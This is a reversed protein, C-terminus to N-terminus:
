ALYSSLCTPTTKTEDERVQMEQPTAEQVAPVAADSQLSFELIGKRLLDRLTEGNSETIVERLRPRKEQIDQLLRVIASACPYTTFYPNDPVCLEVRDEVGALDTESRVRLAPHVRLKLEGCDERALRQMLGFYDEVLPYIPTAPNNVTRCYYSSRGSASQCMLLYGFNVSELGEREFNEVWQDFVQNYESFTQGFPAHSHPVCFLLADRDATKLVLQDMADGSWWSDLKTGYGDVNVLDTVVAIRGRSTLHPAAEQIIRRLVQEGNAGGDRFRYEARPSPVFPPNALVVDFREGRVPEFLDGRHIALNEVGNLQANFRAVRVARPNVDVSVVRRSYRSAVIGQIGSGCCLDLTAMSRSRPATQVLGHSDMGIYMVPQETLQDEALFMYRHDTAFFLGDSCFLDVRSAWRQERKVLVGLGCLATFVDSGLLEEIREKSLATRLLFLRVLDALGTDPLRKRDYYRLHTPEITQLSDCGLLACIAGEHYGQLHLAANLDELMRRQSFSPDEFAACLAEDSDKGVPSDPTRAPSWETHTALGFVGLEGRAWDIERRLELHTLAASLRFEEVSDQPGNLAALLMKVQSLDYQRTKVRGAQDVLSSQGLPDLVLVVDDSLQTRLGGHFPTKPFLRSTERFRGGETSLRQLEGPTWPSEDGRQFFLARDLKEMLDTVAADPQGLGHPLVTAPVSSLHEQYDKVPVSKKSVWYDGLALYDLDCSLLTQLAERPTEVIPQGAVNFSTNLIVPPGGRQEAMVNCLQYFFPNTAQDVTQVRGTGDAHTVAPIQSRMEPRVESVLLMFPSAHELVFVENVRDLPIVPAFPRFAERFKVRANIVAKMEQFTPDALISRHGLARPGFEAGQEFRAVISGTALSTATQRLIEECTMKEFHVLDSFEDLAAAIQVDDHAHGLAAVKLPPRLTGGSQHYAWFACGAAIGSDGAAPFVFIDELALQRLLRYNAVSNLAVGGAMCLKRLGTQRLALEVVHELAEELEKQVKYALDVLWPRLYPVDGDQGHRKELAAVELFIDYASIELSYSGPNKRFWQRWNPQEAGYAALGMLKGSEPYQVTGVSTVFGAKRSVYEYVFGLTSLSSLHAAIQESHLPEIQCGSARYLSYSETQRGLGPTRKTTGTADVVLILAESFGSPWYASYAHALHHSPIERVAHSTEASFKNRLIGPAFDEGPMNATITTMALLPLDLSDMCYKLCEGPVQIFEPDGSTQYLFGISHKKRDLREQEIAIVIEGDRVVAASRDHGMNIGLHYDSM